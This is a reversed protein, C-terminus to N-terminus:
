DEQILQFDAKQIFVITIAKDPIEFRTLIEAPSMGGKGRGSPVLLVLAALALAAGAPALPWLPLWTRSAPSPAPAAVRRRLDAEVEPPVEETVSQVLASIRADIAQDNKM